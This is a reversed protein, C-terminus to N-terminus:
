RGLFRIWYRRGGALHIWETRCCVLKMGSSTVAPNLMAHPAVSHMKRM